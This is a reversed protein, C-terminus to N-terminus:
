EDIVGKIRKVDFDVNDLRAYEVGDSIQKFLVSSKINTQGSQADIYNVKGDRVEYVMSHGSFTNKWRICLNGRAGEGQSLLENTVNKELKEATFRGYEDTGSVKKIKAKPYWDTIKNTVFGEETKGATVDYGRRRLDYCSTCLMCNHTVDNKGTYFDPNVRKVDEKWSLEKSKLKMGTKPDVEAKEREKTYGKSRCYKYGREAAAGAAIALYPSYMIALAALYASGNEVNQKTVVSKSTDNDSNHKKKHGLQEPTRRVGWKMGKVGYHALYTNDKM